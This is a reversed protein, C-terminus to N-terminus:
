GEVRLFTSLSPISGGVCPNETRQEIVHIHGEQTLFACQIGRLLCTTVGTTASFYEGSINQVGGSGHRYGAMLVKQSGSLYGCRQRVQLIGHRPGWGGTGIGSRAYERAVLAAVVYDHAAPYIHEEGTAGWWTSTTGDAGTRGSIDGARESTDGNRRFAAWPM